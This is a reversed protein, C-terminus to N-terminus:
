ANDRWPGELPAKREVVAEYFDLAPKWDRAGGDSDVKVSSGFEQKFAILIACVILDYPKRETKCFGWDATPDNSRHITMSEHGLEQQRRLREAIRRPSGLGWTRKTWDADALDADINWVGTVDEGKGLM